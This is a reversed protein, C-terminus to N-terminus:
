ERGANATAEEEEAAEAEAEAAKEEEEVTGPADSSVGGGVGPASDDEDLDGDGYGVDDASPLAPAGSADCAQASEPPQQQRHHLHHHSDGADDDDGDGGRGGDQDQQRQPQPREGGGESEEQEQQQDHLQQQQQLPPREPVSRNAGASVDEAEEQAEEAGVVAGRGGAAAAAAAPEREDVTPSQQHQAAKKVVIAAPVDDMDASTAHRLLTAVAVASSHLQKSARERAVLDLVPSPLVLASSSCSPQSYSYPASGGVGAGVGVGVGVGGGGGGGGARASTMLAWRQAAVSTATAHRPLGIVLSVVQVPEGVISEVDVLEGMVIGDNSNNNNNSSSSSSSSSAPRGSLGSSGRNSRSRGSTGGDLYIQSRRNYQALYGWAAYACYGQLVVGFTTVIMSYAIGISTLSYASPVPQGGGGVSAATTTQEESPGSPGSGVDSCGNFLNSYPEVVTWMGLFIACFFFATLAENRLAHPTPSRMRVCAVSCCVVWGLRVIILVVAIVLSTPSQSICVLNFPAINSYFNSLIVEIVRLLVAASHICLSAAILSRLGKDLASGCCASTPPRLCLFSECTLLRRREGENGQGRVM